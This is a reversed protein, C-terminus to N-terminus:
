VHSLASLQASFELELLAYVQCGFSQLHVSRMFHDSCMANVDLDCVFLLTVFQAAIHSLLGISDTTFLATSVFSIASLVLRLKIMYFM